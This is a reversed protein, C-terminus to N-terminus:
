MDHRSYSSSSLRNSNVAVLDFSHVKSKISRALRAEGCGFDGVVWNARPKLTRIMEDLPNVTWSKTQSVFGQHYKHFQSPNAQFYEFADEGRITYLRENLWRFKAGQLRERMKAQLASTAMPIKSDNFAKGDKVIKPEKTTNSTEREELNPTNKKKKKKKNKRRKKKKQQQQEGFNPNGSLDGKCGAQSGRDKEEEKKKTSSTRGRGHQGHQGDGGRSVGQESRMESGSTRQTEKEEARKRSKQIGVAEGAGADKSRNRKRRRKRGSGPTKKGAESHRAAGGENSAAATGEALRRKRALLAEALHPLRKHGKPPGNSNRM